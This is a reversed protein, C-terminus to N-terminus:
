FRNKEELTNMNKLLKFLKKQYEEDKVLKFIFDLVHAYSLGRYERLTIEKDEM